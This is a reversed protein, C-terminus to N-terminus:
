RPNARETRGTCRIRELVDPRLIRLKRGRYDVIGARKFRRLTKCASERCMGALKGLDGQPLPLDMEIAGEYPRGLLDALDLLRGALRAPVESSTRELATDCMWRVRQALSRALEVAALPNHGLAHLLAPADVGLVECRGVAVADLPQPLEDLAAVDGILDGPLALALITENGDADRATLKMMGLLLLYARRTREGALFLRGGPELRREVGRGLIVARDRDRLSAIVPSRLARLKREM